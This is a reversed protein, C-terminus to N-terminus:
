GSETIRSNLNAAEGIVWIALDEGISWTVMQGKEIPTGTSTTVSNNYGWYIVRNSNNLFTVSKRFALRNSGVKVEIASTGVTLSGYVGSTNVIDSVSGEDNGYTANSDSIPM